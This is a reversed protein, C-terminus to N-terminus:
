LNDKLDPPVKGVVGVVTREAGQSLHGSLGLSEIRRLLAKLEEERYGKKM